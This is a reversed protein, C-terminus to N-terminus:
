ILSPNAFYPMPRRAKVDHYLQVWCTDVKDTVAFVNTISQDEPDVEHFLDTLAPVASFKRAMHWYHLTNRFDGHITNQGYKYEAYRQQYGFTPLSIANQNTPVVETADTKTISTDNVYIEVDKVEQEGLNALEPWFYDFKEQRLFHRPVGQSYAPKPMISMIGM